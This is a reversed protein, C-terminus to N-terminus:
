QQIHVWDNKFSNLMDNRVLKVVYELISRHNERFQEYELQHYHEKLQDFQSRCVSTGEFNSKVIEKATKFYIDLERRDAKGKEIYQKAINDKVKNVSKDLFDDLEKRLMESYVNPGTKIPYSSQILVYSERIIRALGVLSFRKEYEDQDNLIDIVKILIDPIMSNESLSSCLRVQMFEAPMIELDTQVSKDVILFGDQYCVRNECEQVKVALKINRIIKKLSPDREGYFRFINDEVKSCVLRRLEIQIDEDSLLELDCYKFYEALVVLEGGENKQFLDAIFDWALDELNEDRIMFSKFSGSKIRLSTIAVNFCHSILNNVDSRNYSNNVCRQLTRKIGMLRLEKNIESQFAIFLISM